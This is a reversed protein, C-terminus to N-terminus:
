FERKRCSELIKTIGVFIGLSEMDDIHNPITTSGKYEKRMEVLLYKAFMIKLTSGKWNM